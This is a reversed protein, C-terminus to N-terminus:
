EKKANNDGELHGAADKILFGLKEAFYSLRPIISQYNMRIPGIIGIKGLPGGNAGYSALVVSSDRLAPIDTEDGLHVGDGFGVLLPLVLDHRSLFELMDRAQEHGYEKHRLLNAQGGLKYELESLDVILDFLGVILPTLELLYEGGCAALTQAAARSLEGLPKHLLFQDVLKHFALVMQDSVVFDSRCVKNKIIGHSSVAVILVTTENMLFVQAKVLTASSDAPTTSLTTLDTLEALHHAAIDLLRRPDDENRPLLDDIARCQIDTLTQRPMLRDIYLHYGKATPIRGSSTHPQELYGQECLESMEARLTASSLQGDFAPLITKSGVPEGSQSYNNIVASLVALQRKTLGEM